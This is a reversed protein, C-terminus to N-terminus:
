SLQADKRVPLLCRSSGPGRGASQGAEVASESELGRMLTATRAGTEPTYLGSPLLSSHAQLGQPM